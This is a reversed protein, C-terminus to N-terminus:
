VGRSFKQNEEETWRSCGNKGPIVSRTKGKLQQLKGKISFWSRDPFLKKLDFNTWGEIQIAKIFKATEANSWERKPTVPHADIAKQLKKNGYLHIYNGRKLRYILDSIRNSNRNPLMTQIKKGSPGYKIIGKLVTAIEQQSYARPWYKKPSKQIPKM